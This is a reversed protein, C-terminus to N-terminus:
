IRHPRMAVGFPKKKKQVVPVAEPTRLSIIQSFELQQMTHVAFRTNAEERPLQVIMLATDIASGISERSLMKRLYPPTGWLATRHKEPLNYYHSSAESYKRHLGSLRDRILRRKLALPVDTSVRRMGVMVDDWMALANSMQVRRLMALKYVARCIRTVYKHYKMCTYRLKNWPKESQLYQKIMNTRMTKSKHKQKLLWRMILMNRKVAAQMKLIRAAKLIKGRLSTLVARRREQRESKLFITSLKHHRAAILVHTAWLRVLDAKPDHRPRQILLRLEQKQKAREDTIQYPQIPQLKQRQRQHGADRIRIHLKRIEEPTMNNVRHMFLSESTKKVTGPGTKGLTPASVTRVVEVGLPSLGRKMAPEPTTAGARGDMVPRLELPKLSNRRM